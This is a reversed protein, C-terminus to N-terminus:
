SFHNNHKYGNNHINTATTLSSLFLQKKISNYSKKLYFFEYLTAVTNEIDRSFYQLLKLFFFNIFNQM